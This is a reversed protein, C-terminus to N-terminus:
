KTSRLGPYKSSAEANIVIASAPDSRATVLSRAIASTM